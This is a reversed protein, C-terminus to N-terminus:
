NENLSWDYELYRIQYSDEQIFRLQDPQLAPSLFNLVARESPGHGSFQDNTGYKSVFDGGFWDFIASLHVTGSGTPSREIRFRAPDSLFRRTQDNLQRDLDHGEYPERRLPPCSRAACVLAMHIRPEDFQSRLVEHEIQDLTLKRGAVTFQLRDWVGDIQRISKKPYVLSRLFSTQIPYHDIVARLTLANYANIWFAIRHPESWSKLESVHLRGMGDIYSDLLHREAKIQSYDVGGRSDVFRRLVEAYADNVFSSRPESSAPSVPTLETGRKGFIFLATSVLVASVWVIRVLTEM